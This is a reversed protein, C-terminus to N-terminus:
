YEDWWTQRGSVVPQFEAVADLRGDMQIRSGVPKDCILNPMSM